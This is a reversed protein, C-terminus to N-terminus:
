GLSTLKSVNRLTAFRKSRAGGFYFYPFDAVTNPKSFLDQGLRAVSGAGERVFVYVVWRGCGTRLDRIIIQNKLSSLLFLFTSTFSSTMMSFM